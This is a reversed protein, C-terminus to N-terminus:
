GTATYITENDYTKIILHRLKDAYQKNVMMSLMGAVDKKQAMIRATEIMVDGDHREFPDIEHDTM